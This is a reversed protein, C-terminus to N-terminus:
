SHQLFLDTFNTNLGVLKEAKDHLIKMHEMQQMTPNVPGSLSQYMLSYELTTIEDRLLEAEDKKKQAEQQTM